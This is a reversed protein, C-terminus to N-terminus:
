ESDEERLSDVDLAMSGVLAGSGRMARCRLLAESAETLLVRGRRGIGGVGRPGRPDRERADGVSLEGGDYEDSRRSRGGSLLRRYESVGFCGRVGSATGSGEDLVTALVSTGGLYVRLREPVLIRRIDSACTTDAAATSCPVDTSM